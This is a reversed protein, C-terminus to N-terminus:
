CHLPSRVCRFDACSPDHCKQVFTGSVCDLVFFVHNSQHMRGVNLCFHSGPGSFLKMTLSRLPAHGEARVYKQDHPLVADATPPGPSLVAMPPMGPIGSSLAGIMSFAVRGACGCRAVTRVRAPKGGSRLTALAEVWPLAAQAWGLVGAGMRDASGGVHAM